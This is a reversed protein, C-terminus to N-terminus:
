SNVNCSLASRRVAKIDETRAETSPMVLHFSMTRWSCGSRPTGMCSHAVNTLDVVNDGCKHSQKTSLTRM